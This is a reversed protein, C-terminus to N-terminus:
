DRNIVRLSRRPNLLVGRVGWFSPEQGALLDETSSTDSSRRDRDTRGVGGGPMVGTAGGAYPGSSGSYSGQAVSRADRESSTKAAGLIGGAGAIGGGSGPPPLAFGEKEATRPDLSARQAMTVHNKYLQLQKRYVWACFGFYTAIIALIGAIVGVVIAVINHNSGSGSNSNAGGPSGPAATTTVVTGGPGTVTYTIPKGTAMPGDTPSQVPATLTAGGTPSGGIVSIVAAPVEYGYSGELGQVTANQSNQFSKQNSQQSFPNTNADNNNPDPPPGSLSTFQNTWELSTMNFTYIGPSDCSLDQGVFGGVVIMQGDWINCTHGARAPPIQSSSNVEIWTFSPISLIWMDDYQIQQKYPVLNQGGFMYMNYSSGDPAAAVVACPNVRAQPTKGSTTQKYWTSTAIDYVDIVNM